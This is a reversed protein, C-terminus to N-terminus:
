YVTFNKNNNDPPLLVIAMLFLAAIQTVKMKSIDSLGHPSSTAYRNHNVNSKHCCSCFWSALCSCCIDMDLKAAIKLCRSTTNSSREVLGSTNSWLEVAGPVTQSQLTQKSSSSEPLPLVFPLFLAQKLGQLWAVMQKSQATLIHLSVLVQGIHLAVRVVTGSAIWKHHCYRLLLFFSFGVLGYIYLWLYLWM